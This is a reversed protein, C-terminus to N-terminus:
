RAKKTSPLNNYIGSAQPCRRMVREIQAVAHVLDTWGDLMNQLTELSEAELLIPSVPMGRQNYVGRPAGHPLLARRARKAKSAEPFEPCAKGHKGGCFYCPERKAKNKKM